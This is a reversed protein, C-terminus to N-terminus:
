RKEALAEFRSRLAPDRNLWRRFRTRELSLLVCDGLTVVSANRPENSLLAAEGFADGDHLKALEIGPISTRSGDGRQVSVTGRAIIFFRDGPMGQAIVQEGPGYRETV